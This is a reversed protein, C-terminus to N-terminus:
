RSEKFLRTKSQDKQDNGWKAMRSFFLCMNRCWRGSDHLATSCTTTVAKLCWCFSVGHTIQHKQRHQASSLSTHTRSVWQALSKWHRHLTSTQIHQSHWGGGEASVSSSTTTSTSCHHVGAQPWDHIRWPHFLNPHGWVLIFLYVLM